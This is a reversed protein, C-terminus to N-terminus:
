FGFHSIRLFSYVAMSSGFPMARMRFYVRENTDPHVLCIYSAWATSPHVPLQRYAATLDFAKGLLQFAGKGVKDRVYKLLRQCTSAVVDTSQPQPAEYAQVALNVGSSTLNDICRVKSGQQLGLRRSVLTGEDLQSETLPGVIWGAELEKKTKNFVESMLATEQPKLSNHVKKRFKSFDTRVQQPTAQMPKFKPKFVGSIPTHGVLPIGERLLSSVEPDPYDYKALLAEWLVIRKSATIARVDPHMESKLKEEDSALSTALHVWEKLTCVRKQIVEADDSNDLADLTCKLPQPLVSGLTRPHFSENAKSMFEEPTWPIGWAMEWSSVRLLEDGGSIFRDARAELTSSQRPCPHLFSPVSAARAM